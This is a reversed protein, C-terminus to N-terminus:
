MYWSNTLYTNQLYQIKEPLKRTKKIEKSSYLNKIKTFYLKDM